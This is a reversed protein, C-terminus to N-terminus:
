KLRAVHAVRDNVNAQQHLIIGCTKDESSTYLNEFLNLCELKTSKLENM